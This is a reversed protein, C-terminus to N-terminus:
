RAADEVPLEALVRRAFAHDPDLRLMAEAGVRAGPVDGHRAALATWEGWAALNGPDRELLRGWISAARNWDGRRLEVSAWQRLVRPTPELDATREFARASEDIRGLDLLRFRLYDWAGALAAHDRAPPEAIFAEIRAIARDVDNFHLLWTVSPAAAALAAAAGLAALSPRATITSGLAWAATFACLVGAMVFVETDRFVGHAPHVALSAFVPPLVIAALVRAERPAASAVRPALVLALLLVIKM